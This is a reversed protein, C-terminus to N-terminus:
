SRIWHIFTAQQISFQMIKVDFPKAITVAGTGVFKNARSERGNVLPFRFSTGEITSVSHSYNMIADKWVSVCVHMIFYNSSQLSGSSSAWVFVNKSHRARFIWECTNRLCVHKSSPYKFSYIHRLLEARRHSLWDTPPTNVNFLQVFLTLSHLDFNRELQLTHLTRPFLTLTSPFHNRKVSFRGSANICHYSKNCSPKLPAIVSAPFLSVQASKCTGHNKKRSCLAVWFQQREFIQRKMVRPSSFEPSNRVNRRSYGELSFTRAM